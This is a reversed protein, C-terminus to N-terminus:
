AVETKGDIGNEQAEKYVRVVIALLLKDIQKQQQNESLEEVECTPVETKVRPITFKVRKMM